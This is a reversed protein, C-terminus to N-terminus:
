VLLPLGGEGRGLMREAGPIESKGKVGMGHGTFLNGVRVTFSECWVGDMLHEPYGESGGRFVRSAHGVDELVRHQAAAALVRHLLREHVQEFPGKLSEEVSERVGVASAVRHRRLVELNTTNCM